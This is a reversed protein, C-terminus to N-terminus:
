SIQINCMIWHQPTVAFNGLNFTVRLVATCQFKWNTASPEGSFFNEAKFNLSLGQSKWVCVCQGRGEGTFGRRFFSSIAALEWPMYIYMYLIYTYIYVWDWNIFILYSIYSSSLGAWKKGTSVKHFNLRLHKTLPSDSLSFSPSWFPLSHRTPWGSTDM